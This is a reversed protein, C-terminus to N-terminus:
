LLVPSVLVTLRSMLVLPSQWFAVAISRYMLMHLTASQWVQRSLCPALGGPNCMGHMVSLQALVLGAGQGAWNSRSTASVSYPVGLEIVDAGIEDLKKVAAATTDLDPDGACLFPIFAV